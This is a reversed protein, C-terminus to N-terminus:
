PLVSHRSSKLGGVHRRARGLDHMRNGNLGLRNQHLLRLYHHLLRLNQHLLRLYHHLLWYVQYGPSGLSDDNLLRRTCISWYHHHLLLACVQVTTGAAPGRNSPHARKAPLMSNRLHLVFSAASCPSSAHPQSAYSTPQPAAEDWETYIIRFVGM